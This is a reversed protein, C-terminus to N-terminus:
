ILCKRVFKSNRLVLNKNYLVHMESYARRYLKWEHEANKDQNLLKGVSNFKSWLFTPYRWQTIGKITINSESVIAVHHYQSMVIDNKYYTTKFVLEGFALIIRKPLLTKKRFIILFCWRYLSLGITKRCSWFILM